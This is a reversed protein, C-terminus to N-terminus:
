RGQWRLTVLVTADPTHYGDILTYDRDLLNDVRAVLTWGSVVPVSARLALLGYGGLKVGGYDPRDSAAVGEVGVRVGGDFRRELLATAKRSPRRLLAEGTDRSSPDQWTANSELQWAAGEWQWTVEVGDIRARAINIAQAQAGSFDILEDIDNRFVRLEYKSAGGPTVRLALEQSESREPALQPNGAYWGGWGPSYFENMTPARFGEGWSASLRAVSGMDWAWAAGFSTSTGYISNDDHRGSLELAQSGARGRWGAFVSRTSRSQAYVADGGFTDVQEGREDLWALGLTTEGRRGHSLTHQWDAQRRHSRYVIFSSPTDLRDRSGGLTLRHQWQAGLQGFLALSQVDQRTNSQGQDFDIDNDAHLLMAELRQTGLALDGHLTVNRLRAGDRDPDFSWNGPATANQGRTELWGAHIGVGGREGRKGIGASVGQTDHNGRQLSAHPAVDRRTFIQVVGGLADAGWQAARPGRVVEIRDIQALPLHEWAYAGTGLAGVRVGDILVLAHNSNTGRIFVSAQQGIGGGRVIDVGPVRRLLDVVDQTGAAEIQDREIVDVAALVDDAAVPVRSATVVVEDTRPLTQALVPTVALTTALLSVVSRSM